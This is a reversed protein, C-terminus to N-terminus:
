INTFYKFAYTDGLNTSPGRLIREDVTVPPTRVQFHDPLTVPLYNIDGENDEDEEDEPPYLPSGGGTARGHAVFEGYTDAIREEEIAVVKNKRARILDFWKKRPQQHTLNHGTTYNFLIRFYIFVIDAMSKILCRAKDAM